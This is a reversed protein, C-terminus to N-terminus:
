IGTYPRVRYLRQHCRQPQAEEAWDPFGGRFVHGSVALSRGSSRPPHLGHVTEQRRDPILHFLYNM